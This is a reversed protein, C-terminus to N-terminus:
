KYDGKNYDLIGNKKFCLKNLFFFLVPNKKSFSLAINTISPGITLIPVYFNWEAMRKSLRCFIQSLFIHAYASLTNM